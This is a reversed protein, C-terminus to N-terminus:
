PQILILNYWLGAWLKIRNRVYEVKNNGYALFNKYFIKAWGKFTRFWREIKNRKGGIVKKHKLKLIKCAWPYWGAGDTIIVVEKPNSCKNKVQKLFWFATAGARQWSVDIALIEDTKVDISSWIFAEKGNIKIKTEDVAIIKREKKPVADIWDRVIQFQQVWEGIKQRAVRRGRWELHRAASALSLGALVLLVAEAKLEFSVRERVM